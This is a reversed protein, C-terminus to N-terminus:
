AFRARYEPSQFVTQFLFKVDFGGNLLSAWQESQEQGPPRKLMATFVTSVRAMNFYLFQARATMALETLMAAANADNERAFRPQWAALFDDPAPMKMLDAHVTRILTTGWLKGYRARWRASAVVETAVDLLPQGARRMKTWRWVDEPEPAAGGGMWGVRAVEIGLTSLDSKRYIQDLTVPISWLGWHVLNGWNAIETDTPHVQRFDHFQQIVFKVADAFPEFRTDPALAPGTTPKPPDSAFLDLEPYSGGLLTGPDGGLWRALVSAYVSRFDTTVALDGREDLDVLSPYQGHLGGRVRDGIVLLPASTGHDTGSGNDGARRGFESFTMIVVQDAWKPDLTRYFVDVAEDLDSLLFNHTWGQNRHTDFSALTANLVRTGVNLNIIRAATCLQRTLSQGETSPTGMRAFERSLDISDRDMTAIADAIPGLGTSQAGFARLGDYLALKAGNDREAGFPLQEGIASVQSRDGVLHLPITGDVSACRFGRDADPLTDLYRGLWGNMRSTGTTGAMWTSMSSFHSHDLDPNGVGQVVAVKGAGYRAALKPLGPHFSLSGAGLAHSGAAVSTKPRLAAYAPDAFPGVMNLGDNGGGLQVIVLITDGSDLPESEAAAVKALPGFTLASAGGAALAAKFFTRRGFAHEDVPLNLADRIEEFEPDPGLRDIAPRMEPPFNPDM